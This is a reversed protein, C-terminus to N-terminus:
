LQQYTLDKPNRDVAWKIDAEFSLFPLAKSYFFIPPTEREKEREGSLSLFPKSSCKCPDSLFPHQLSTEFFSILLYPLAFVLRQNLMYISGTAFCSSKLLDQKPIIELVM